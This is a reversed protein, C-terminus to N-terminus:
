YQRILGMADSFRENFREVRQWWTLSEALENTNNLNTNMSNTPSIAEERTRFYYIIPGRCIPCSEVKEFCLKCLCVHRCPIIARTVLSVQCVSCLIDSFPEPPLDTNPTTTTAGDPVSEPDIEDEEDLRHDDIVFLPQLIHSQGNNMKIYQSLTSSAKPV